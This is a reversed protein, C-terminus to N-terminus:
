CRMRMCAGQIPRRHSCPLAPGAVAGPRLGLPVDVPRLLAAICPSTRMNTGYRM